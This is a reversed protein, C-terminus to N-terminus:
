APLQLWMDFLAGLPADWTSADPPVLPVMRSRPFYSFYRRWAELTARSPLDAINAKTPVWEFYIACGIAAAYLHFLNCLRAADPKSSYGHLLSSLAGTNDIFLIVKRGAFSSPSSMLASLAAIMEAQMILTKDDWSLYDYVWQPLTLTGHFPDAEDPHFAVVGIQSFPLSRRSSPPNFMADTYLVVPNRNDREIPIRLAPLRPLLAEFFDAASCLAVGFSYDHDFYERQMLPQTAARGVRGSAASLLFGLKGRITSADGPSLYNAARAVSLAHLVKEIRDPTCRVYVAYEVYVQGVDIEHGLGVNWDAIEKHKKIEILDPALLDHCLILSDQASTMGDATDITMYDDFYQDVMVAFLVQAMHVILKPFRNFNLVAAIAGFQHGPLYYFVVCQREIDWVAFVTYQPHCTPVRRYASRMDDFGIGLALMSIQLISCWMFVLAACAAAFEVTICKITEHTTAAANILAAKANDIARIKVGGAGNSQVTGFRVQTRWNNEGFKKHCETASLPGFALGDSVEKRSLRHLESVVPYNRHDAATDTVQDVVQKRYARNAAPTFTEVSVSAPQHIPRFLGSDAIDGVIPFGLVFRQVIDYDPWEVADVFAAMFALNMDAVLYAVSPPSLSAIWRSYRTLSAAIRRIRTARAGRWDPLAHSQLVCERAAAWMSNPQASTLDKEPFPLRRAAEVHAPMDDEVDVLREEPPKVLKSGSTMSFATSARAAPRDYPSLDISLSRLDSVAQFYEPPIATGLWRLARGPDFGVGGPPTSPM